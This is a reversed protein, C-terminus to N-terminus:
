LLWVYIIGHSNNYTFNKVEKTRYDVPLREWPAGYKFGGDPAYIVVYTDTHFNNFVSYIQGLTM